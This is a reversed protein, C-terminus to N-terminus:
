NVVRPSATKSNQRCWGRAWPHVNQRSHSIHIMSCILICIDTDSLFLQSFEISRGVEDMSPRGSSKSGHRCTLINVNSTSKQMKERFVFVAHAMDTFCASAASQLHTSMQATSVEPHHSCVRYLSTIVGM